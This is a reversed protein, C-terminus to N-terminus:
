HRRGSGPRRGATRHDLDAALASRDRQAQRPQTRNGPGTSAAAPSARTPPSAETPACRSSWMHAISRHGHNRRRGSTPKPCSTASRPVRSFGPTQGKLWHDYWALAEIHMSEWPWTLGYKGLMAVRVCPSNTLNRLTSFTSPLHLPANEWDCGLYVPIDINRAIADPRSRGVMCGTDSTQRRRGASSMGLGRRIPLKMLLNLMGNASEGNMTAFKKHM